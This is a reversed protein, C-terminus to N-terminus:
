LEYFFLKRIVTLLGRFHGLWKAIYCNLEYSMPFYDVFSFPGYSFCSM